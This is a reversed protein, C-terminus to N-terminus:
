RWAAFGERIRRGVGGLMERRAYVVGGGILALGVTGIWAWSPLAFLVSRSLWLADLVLIALGGQFYVRTRSLLGIATSAAALGLAWLGHRLATEADWGSVALAFPLAVGVAFAAVDTGVPVRRETKRSAWLVGM